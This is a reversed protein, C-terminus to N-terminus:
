ASTSFFLGLGYGSKQTTCYPSCIRKTLFLKFDGWFKIKFKCNQGWLKEAIPYALFWIGVLMSFM